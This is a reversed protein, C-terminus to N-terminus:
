NQQYQYIKYAILPAGIISIGLFANKVISKIKKKSFIHGFVNISDNMLEQIKAIVEKDQRAVALQMPTKGDSGARTLLTHTQDLRDIMEIAAANGNEAALHMATKGFINVKTLLTPDLRNLMEIAEPKGYLAATHIANKGHHDVRKMLTHSQDLRDLMEIAATNGLEAALHIATGGGNDVKLLLTPFLKYVAKIVKPSNSKAAYHIVTRGFSDVLDVVLHYRTHYKDFFTIFQDDGMECANLLMKNGSNIYTRYRNVSDILIDPIQGPAPTTNPLSAAARYTAITTLSPFNSAM